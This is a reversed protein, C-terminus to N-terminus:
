KHHSKNFVEILVRDEGVIHKSKQTDCYITDM